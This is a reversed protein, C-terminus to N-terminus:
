FKEDINNIFGYLESLFIVIGSIIKKLKENIYLIACTVFCICNFTLYQM